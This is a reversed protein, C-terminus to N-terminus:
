LHVRGQGISPTGGFSRNSLERAPITMTTFFSSGTVSVDSASAIPFEDAEEFPPVLRGLHIFQNTAASTAVSALVAIVSFVSVKM